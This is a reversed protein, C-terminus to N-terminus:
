RIIEFLRFIRDILVRIIILYHYDKDICFHAGFSHFSYFIKM